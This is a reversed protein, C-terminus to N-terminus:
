IIPPDNGRDYGWKRERRWEEVAAQIESKSPWLEWAKDMLKAVEAVADGSEAKYRGSAAADALLGVAKGVAKRSQVLLKDGADRIAIARLCSQAAHICDRRWEAREPPPMEIDPYLHERWVEPPDPPRPKRGRM